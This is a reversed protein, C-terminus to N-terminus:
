QASALLAGQVSYRWIAFFHLGGGLMVALHWFVHLMPVRKGLLYLILGGSYALGGAVVSAIAGPQMRSALTRVPAVGIWGMALAFFARTSRGAPIVQLSMLVGIIAFTWILVLVIPGAVTMPDLTYCSVFPTYSGAILIFISCHDMSHLVERLGPVRFCSHYLCSSLFMTLLSSCFLLISLTQYMPLVPWAYYLMFMGGVIAGLSGIGHTVGNLVEVLVLNGTTDMRVPAGVRQAVAAELAVVGAHEMNNNSVDVVALRAVGGNEPDLLAAAFSKASATSLRNKRLDIATLPSKPGADLLATLVQALGADGIRARALSLTHVSSNSRLFDAIRAITEPSLAAGGLVLESVEDADSSAALEDLLALVNADGRASRANSSAAVAAAEGEFGAPGCSICM